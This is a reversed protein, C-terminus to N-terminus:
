INNLKLINTCERGFKKLNKKIKGKFHYFSYFLSYCSFCFQLVIIENALQLAFRQIIEIKKYM